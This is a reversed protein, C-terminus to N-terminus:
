SAPRQYVGLLCREPYRLSWRSLARQLRLELTNLWRFAALTRCDDLETYLVERLGAEGTHRLLDKHTNLKYATPFTDRAESDWILRKMPNHLKFPVATAIISMPAWKYPTYIVAHGGPKLLSAVRGIAATPNVIHEAVMRLTVLDFQRDTDCDEVLGQFHGHLMRNERVNDDPDIGFVYSCRAALEEALAPNQPFIDRGCGIDAWAAGPVVLRSAVAEYYDDPTYYGFRERLAPSWGPQGSRYYKAKFGQALEDRSPLSVVSSGSM